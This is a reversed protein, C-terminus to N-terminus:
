PSGGQSDPLCERQRKMKEEGKTLEEKSTAQHATMAELPAEMIERFKDRGPVASM